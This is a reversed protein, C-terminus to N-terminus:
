DDLGEDSDKIKKVKKEKKEKQEKKEETKVPTDSKGEEDEKNNVKKDKKIPKDLEDPNEKVKEKQTCIKVILKSIKDAASKYSVTIKMTTEKMDTQEETIGFIYEGKITCLVKDRNETEVIQVLLNIYTNRKNGGSTSYFGPEIKETHVIMTYMNAPTNKQAILEMKKLGKNLQEIFKPEYIDNRDSTWKKLFKEADPKKRFEASKQKLYLEESLEGVKMGDYVFEINMSTQGKLIDPSGTYSISEQAYTRNTFLFMITFLFLFTINRM